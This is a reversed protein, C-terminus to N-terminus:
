KCLMYFWIEGVIPRVRQWWTDMAEKNGNEMFITAMEMAKKDIEQKLYKKSGGVVAIWIISLVLMQPWKLYNLWNWVGEHVGFIWFIMEVLFCLAIFGWCGLHTNKELKKIEEFYFPDTEGCHPCTSADISLRQKCKKCYMFGDDSNIQANPIEKDNSAIHAKQTQGDTPEHCFPCVEANADIEEGCITCTKKPTEKSDQWEGCHKCKKAVALIEEGCYPCRKTEEM